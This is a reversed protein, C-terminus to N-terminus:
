KRSPGYPPVVAALIALFTGLFFGSWSFISVIGIIILLIRKGVTLIQRKRLAYLLSLLGLLIGIASIIITVIVAATFGTISIALAMQYLISSSTGLFTLGAFAALWKSLGIPDKGKGKRVFLLISGIVVTLIIPLYTVFLDQGEWAYTNHISFPIMIWERLTFSEVYGVALSYNGTKQSEDFVVIYYTGNEPADIDLSAIDYIWGPTFPEYSAKRPNKGDIEMSGWGSPIDIYPPLEDKKESNPMLLSFSPLFGSDEPDQATMLSIYIRDGKSATFKYYDGRDQHDLTAYLVWSKKFDDIQYAHSPDHNGRAFVPSHAFISSFPMILLIFILLTALIIFKLRKISSNNIM